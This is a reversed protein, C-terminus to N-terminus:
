EVDRELCIRRSPGGNETLMAPAVSLKLTFDLCQECSQVRDFTKEVRRRGTESGCNYGFGALCSFTILIDSAANASVPENALNAVTSHRTHIEGLSRVTSELLLNRDLEKTCAHIRGSVQFSESALSLDERSQIM